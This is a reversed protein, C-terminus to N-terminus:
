ASQRTMSIGEISNIFGDCIEKAEVCVEIISELSLTAPTLRAYFADRVFELYRLALSPNEPIEIFEAWLPLIAADVTRNIESYTQAFLPLHCANQLQKQMLLPVTAETLLQNWEPILRNMTRIKEELAGVQQKHHVMLHQFYTDHNGFYHYFGSKNLDIIRALREIQLGEPGEQAFLEYGAKIWVNYSKSKHVQPVAVNTSDTQMHKIPNLLLGKGIHM